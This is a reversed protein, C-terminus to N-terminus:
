LPLSFCIFKPCMMLLDDRGLCCNNTPWGTIACCTSVLCQSWLPSITSFRSLPRDYRTRIFPLCDDNEGGMVLVVVHLAYVVRSLPDVVVQPSCCSTEFDVMVGCISM